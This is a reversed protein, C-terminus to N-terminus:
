NLRFILKGGISKYGLDEFGVYVGVEAFFFIQSMSYGLETYDPHYRSGLYSLTLNERMLTNSLVPLLKLLLYPTTYKLHVEGFAEPTSTTYYAPIMFADEYDNILVPFSQPNFHFFDYFTLKRNDLFGGTRVRWRFESFAGIDHSKNVEARIMDYQNMSEGTNRIDNIGHEWILSFTPWDSGEPHKIGDHIRYKQYPVWTLKAALSIHDQDRLAHVPDSEPQLYRNDPINDTYEGSGNIFTFDTTNELVKRMEYGSTLELNLGNVIESRYGLAIYDSEYLKLYNKELFLSTGSNLMTNIGGGNGIDKSTMGTRLFIERQKMGNFKYSANIRWMLQKRSFAWKIDPIISLSKNQKWHKSFQFDFGYIFGDVTNFSLNKFNILGNNTFSFGSTDSWTHGFGINKVATFFKSKKKKQQSASTDAGSTRLTSEAKISDSIRISRM